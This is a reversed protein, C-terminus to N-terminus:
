IRRSRSATNVKAWREATGPDDDPGEAFARYADGALGVVQRYPLKVPGRRIAEWSAVLHAHAPVYRAKAERQEKTRLSVQVLDGM